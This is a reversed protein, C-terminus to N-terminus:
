VSGIPDAKRGDKRRVRLIAMKTSHNFPAPDVPLTGVRTEAFGATDEPVPVLTELTLYGDSCATELSKMQEQGSLFLANNIVVLTGGDGILPRVKNLLRQAHAQLDVKGKETVSFFPPDVFACDFLREEHKLQGVVEFFDGARFDSKRVAWRNASYSERAVALFNRNLDTQLVEAGGARAAVGLSGTYAFTNLVRKGDLNAKAWTRLPRTDLYFSADRNITLALAYLVGNEVIRRALEKESGLLYTGNRAAQTPAHRVKWLVCDIWPHAGVITQLAERVLTEDGAEADAYDHLVLTRAYVDAVLTPLGEVFGNFLRFATEHKEDIFPQRAALAKEFQAPLPM